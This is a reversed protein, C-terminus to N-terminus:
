FRMESHKQQHSSVVVYWGCSFLFQKAHDENKFKPASRAKTLVVLLEHVQLFEVLAVRM